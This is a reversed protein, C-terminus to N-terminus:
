RNYQPINPNLSLVKPPVPLIMRPDNSQMTFEKGDLKHVITKVFGDVVNLRKLDILRASATYPMERRREDLVFQLTKEKSLGTIHVNNEIRSDRLKNILRLAEAPSGVRAESEALTLYLEPTSFGTNIDVYPGWLTRGPFIYDTGGFSAYDENFFLSYRKDTANAPLDKKYVSILDESAYVESNMSGDSATGMRGWVTENNLKIEPFPTDEDTILCVRGWTTKEKTTYLKYDELYDNLKLAEKANILAQEYNDKYLYMRSLFSFSVTKLPQFKHKGTTALHPLADQLDAEVLEYIQAVSVREYDKNIDESLVLSVGLDSSATKTDYHNAYINVLSLYQFARGVKAEAWVRKKDKETGDIASLVNNIVVNYTFIHRYASEWFPDSQGDEFIAGHEFSHMRKKSTSYDGFSAPNTADDTDGSYLNDSLFDPYAPSAAILSQNNLLQEFDNLLEPITFGKPKEDLYSECGMLILSAMVASFLIKKM